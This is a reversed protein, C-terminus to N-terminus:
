GHQPVEALRESLILGQTDAPGDRGGHVLTVAADPLPTQPTPHTVGTHELHNRPPLDRPPGPVMVPRHTKEEKQSIEWQKLVSVALKIM